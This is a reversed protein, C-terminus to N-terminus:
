PTIETGTANDEAAAQSEADRMLHAEIAAITDALTRLMQTREATGRLAAALDWELRDVRDCLRMLHEAVWRPTQELEISAIEDRQSM